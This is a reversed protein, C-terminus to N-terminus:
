ALVQGLAKELIEINRAAIKLEDTSDHLGSAPEDVNQLSAVFSRQTNLMELLMARGRESRAMLATQRRRHRTDISPIM